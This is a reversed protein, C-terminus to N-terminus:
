KDRLGYQGKAYDIEQGIDDLGLPGRMEISLWGDYDVERLAATYDKHPIEPALSPRALEPASIDFSRMGYYRVALALHVPDDQAGAMAASDLHIGFGPNDVRNVLEMGEPATRVFENGYGSLPEITLQTNNNNAEVAVSSFLEAAESMAQEASLYGVKRLGPSGFVMSVAGLRGALEAQKKLHDALRQRGSEEGFLAAGDVGFVLSQLGVVVMGREALRKRYEYAEKPGVSPAEPWIMTPAIVLGEVGCQSVRKLAEQQNEGFAINSIALKMSEKSGM